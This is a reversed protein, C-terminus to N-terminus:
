YTMLSWSKMKEANLRLDRENCIVSSGIIQGMKVNYLLSQLKVAKVHAFDSDRTMKNLVQSSNFM